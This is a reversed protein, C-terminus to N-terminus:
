QLLFLGSKSPAQASKVDAKWPGYFPSYALAWAPALSGLAIVGVLLAKMIIGEQYHRCRRWPRGLPRPAYEIM